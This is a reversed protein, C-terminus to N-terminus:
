FRTCVLAKLKVTQFFINTNSNIILIMCKIKKSHIDKKKKKYINKIKVLNFFYNYIIM